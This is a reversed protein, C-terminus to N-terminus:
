SVELPSNYEYDAVHRLYIVEYKSTNFTLRDNSTWCQPRVLDEKIAVKTAFKERFNWTMLSFYYIPDYKRLFTM